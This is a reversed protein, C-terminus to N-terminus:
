QRDITLVISNTVGLYHGTRSTAQVQVTYTGPAPYTMCDGFYLNTTNWWSGDFTDVKGDVLLAYFVDASSSDSAPDWTLPIGCGHTWGGSSLNSPPVFRLSDASGSGPAAIMGGAAVFAALLLSVFPRRIM